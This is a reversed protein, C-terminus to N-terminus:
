PVTRSSRARTARSTKANRSPVVLAAVGSHVTLAVTRAAALNSLGLSGPLLRKRSLKWRTGRLSVQAPGNLAFVSVLRRRPVRLTVDRATVVVLARRDIAVVAALRKAARGAEFLNAWEHDIRGGLLGAVVVLRVRRPIAEALAGAFDSFDKERPFRIRKLGHVSSRVSDFDGAIVAPRRRLAVFAALGGDVAISLPADDYRRALALALVLDRSSAGELALVATRASPADLEIFPLTRTM